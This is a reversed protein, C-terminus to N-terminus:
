SELEIHILVADQVAREVDERNPDGNEDFHVNYFGADGPVAKLMEALKESKCGVDGHIAVAHGQMEEGRIRVTVAAGDGINKWWPSHTFCVVRDGDRFYSVPTSYKRGSKRGTFRIIMIRESIPAHLPSRLILKMIPNVAKFLLGMCTM